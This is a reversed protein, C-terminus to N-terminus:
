LLIKHWKLLDLNKKKIYGFNIFIKEKYLRFKTVCAQFPRKRELIIFINMWTGRLIKISEYKIKLNQYMHAKNQYLTIIWSKFFTLGTTENCKNFLDDKEWQDPISIVYQIWYTNPDLNPKASQGTEISICYVNLRKITTPSKM